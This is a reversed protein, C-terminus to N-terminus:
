SDFHWPQCSFRRTFHADGTEGSRGFPLRPRTTMGSGMAPTIQFQDVHPARLHLQPWRPGPRTLCAFRDGDARFLAPQKIEDTVLRRRSFGAASSPPIDRTAGYHNKLIAALISEDGRLFFIGGNNFDTRERFHRACHGGSRCSLVFRPIGEMQVMGRQCDM